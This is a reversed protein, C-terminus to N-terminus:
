PTPSRSAQAAAPEEPFGTLLRRAIWQAEDESILTHWGPMPTGPRGLYIVSTLSEVPWHSLAQVTLPPGLGGTLRMGHCSGCDQRVMRVLMQQRQPEVARSVEGGVVSAAVAGTMSLVLGWVSARAPFRPMM